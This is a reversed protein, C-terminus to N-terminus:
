VTIHISLSKGPPAPRPPPANCYAQQAPFEIVEYDPDAPPPVTPPPPPPPM